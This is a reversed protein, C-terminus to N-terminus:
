DGCIFSGRAKCRSCTPKIPSCTQAPSLSPRNSHPPPPYRSLFRSMAAPSPWDIYPDGEIRTSILDVNVTKAVCSASFIPMEPPSRMRDRGPPSSSGKDKPRVPAPDNVGTRKTQPTVGIVPSTSGCKQCSFGINGIFTDRAVSKRQQLVPTEM